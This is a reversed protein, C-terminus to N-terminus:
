AEGMPPPAFPTENCFIPKDSMQCAILEAAGAALTLGLQGHGLNYWLNTFEPQRGIIPCGDPTAACVGASVEPADLPWHKGTFAAARRRLHEVRAASPFERPAAIDFLGSAHIQDGLACLTFRAEADSLSIELQPADSVRAINLQYGTIPYLPLSIGLRGLLLSSEVGCALIVADTAFRAEETDVAVIRGNRADLSLAKLGYMIRVEPAKTLLHASLTQCLLSADVVGDDPSYIGGVFHKIMPALLPAGEVCEAPTLTNIHERVQFSHEAARRAAELRRPHRYLVIRGTRAHRSQIGPLALLKETLSYSLAALEQLAELANQRERKRSARLFARLWRWQGDGRQPRWYIPSDYANIWDPLTFLTFRRDAVPALTFFCFQGGTRRSALRAPEDCTEFITVRHGAAHLRWATTLGAIGAGIIAIDM